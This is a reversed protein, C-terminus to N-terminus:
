TKGRNQRRGGAPARLIGGASVGHRTTIAKLTHVDHVLAPDFFTRVLAHPASTVRKQHVDHVLSAGVLARSASPQHVDHVPAKNEPRM